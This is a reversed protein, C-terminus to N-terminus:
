SMLEKIRPQNLFSDRLGIELLSEAVQEIIERAEELNSAAQKKNGLKENVDALIALSSWLQPNAGLDKALSCAETLVQLAEDLRNLGLLAMGKCRLVDPVDVRTLPTVEAL